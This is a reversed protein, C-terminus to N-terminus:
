YPLFCIGPHYEGGCKNSYNKNDSAVWLGNFALVLDDAGIGRTRTPNWTSARGTSAVIGGIGPRSVAGTGAKDCGNENNLWRQHGGVYVNGADAVVSLLSDCGTYNVWSRTVTTAQNPYAAAADCIGTHLPDAPRKYGTSATYVTADDTSYTADQLYFPLSDACHLYFDTSTWGNLSASTAGLDLQFVQERHVGGVATFVGTVLMKNGSHSLTFNYARTPNPDGPYTGTLGLTLYSDPVGTTPELSALKARAVGNIKAFNGGVLLRGHTYLLANVRAAAAHKFTTRLAGTATDVAAINTAPQGGVTTFSGGIWATSCDAPNLAISNVTGNTNPDFATVKGTTGSFSIANNRTFTKGGDAPSAFRTFTGVAYMNGGCPTLQRVYGTDIPAVMQPTWDAPNQQPVAVAAGADVSMTLVAAAGALAVAVAVGRVARM